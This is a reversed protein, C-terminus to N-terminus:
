CNENSYGDNLINDEGLDKEQGEVIRREEKDYRWSKPQVVTAQNSEDVYREYLLMKMGARKVNELYIRNLGAM